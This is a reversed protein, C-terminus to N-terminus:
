DYYCEARHMLFETNEPAATIANDYHELARHWDALKHYCRGLGDEIGPNPEIDATNAERM